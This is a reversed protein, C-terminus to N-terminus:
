GPQAGSFGKASDNYGVIPKHRKASRRAILVAIGKSILCLAIGIGGLALLARGSQILFARTLGTVYETSASARVHGDASFELSRVSPLQDRMDQLWGYIDYMDEHAVGKRSVGDVQEQLVQAIKQVSQSTVTDIKAHFKATEIGIDVAQASITVLVAAAVAAPLTFRGSRRGVCALVAIALLLAEAAIVYSQVVSEERYSEILTNTMSNNILVALRGERLGDTNGIDMFLMTYGGDVEESAYIQGQAPAPVRISAPDELPPDTHYLLVNDKDLIYAGEIYSSTRRIDELTEKMNYYNDLRKGYRISFEFSQVYQTLETARLAEQAQKHVDGIAENKASLTFLMAGYLCIGAFVCALTRKLWLPM